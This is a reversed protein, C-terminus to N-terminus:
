LPQPTQKLDCLRHTASLLRLGWDGSLEGAGKGRTETWGEGEAQNMKRGDQAEDWSHSAPHSPHLTSSDWPSYLLLSFVPLSSSQCPWSALGACAPAPTPTVPATLRAKDRDEEREKAQHNSSLQHKQCTGLDGPLSSETIFVWLLPATHTPLLFRFFYSPFAM